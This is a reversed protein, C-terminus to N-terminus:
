RRTSLPLDVKHLVVRPVMRDSYEVISVLVSEGKKVLRMEATDWIMFGLHRRSKLDFVDLRSDRIMDAQGGIAGEPGSRVVQGGREDPIITVTWVRDQDDVAFTTMATVSTGPTRNEPIPPFWPLDGIITRLHGGELSWEELHVSGMKGWWVSEEPEDDIGLLVWRALPEALNWTRDTSGFHRLVSGDRIDVLHLPYGVLNPRRDMAAVVALTDGELLTFQGAALDQKTESLFEGAQGYELWSRKSADLLVIRGDQTFAAGPAINRLEGPGDGARGFAGIFDGMTDFLKFRTLDDVIIYGRGEEAVLRPAANDITGPGTSDGITAIPMAQLDCRECPAFAELDVVVQATM